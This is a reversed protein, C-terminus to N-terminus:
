TESDWHFRVYSEPHCVPTLWLDDQITLLPELVLIDSRIVGTSLM